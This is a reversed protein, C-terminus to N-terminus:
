GRCDLKVEVEGVQQPVRQRAPPEERGGTGRIQRRSARPSRLIVPKWSPTDKSSFVGLDGSAPGGLGDGGYRLWGM